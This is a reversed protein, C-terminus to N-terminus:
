LLRVAWVLLGTITGRGFFEMPKISSCNEKTSTRLYGLVMQITTSSPVTPVTATITSRKIKIRSDQTAM